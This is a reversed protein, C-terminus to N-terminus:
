KTGSKTSKLGRNSAKVLLAINRRKDISVKKGANEGIQLCKKNEGIELRKEEERRKQCIKEWKKKM